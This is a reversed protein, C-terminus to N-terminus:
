TVTCTHVLWGLASHPQLAKAHHKWFSADKPSNTRLDCFLQFAAERTHEPVFVQVVMCAPDCSASGCVSGAGAFRTSADDGTSVQAVSDLGVGCYVGWIVPSVIRFLDTAKDAVSMTPRIGPIRQYQEIGLQTMCLPRARPPQLKQECLRLLSAPHSTHIRSLPECSRQLM